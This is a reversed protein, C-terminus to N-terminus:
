LGKEVKISVKLDGSILRDKQDKNLPFINKITCKQTPESGVVVSDFKSQLSSSMSQVLRLTHSYRLEPCFGMVEILYDRNRAANLIFFRDDLTQWRTMRFQTIRNVSELQEQAVFDQYNVRAGKEKNSACGSVTFAFLLVFTQFPTKMNDGFKETIVRM